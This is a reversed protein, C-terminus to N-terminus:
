EPAKKNAALKVVEVPVNKKEAYEITHKTGKSEGDWIALVKDANNVIQRNRVFFYKPSFEVTNDLMHYPKFLYFDIGHSAAYQMVISDVGSAGGSLLSVNGDRSVNHELYESIIHFVTEHDIIGRSGVIAVRM